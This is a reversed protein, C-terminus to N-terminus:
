IIQLVQPTYGLRSDYIRMYLVGPFRSSKLFVQLVKEESL